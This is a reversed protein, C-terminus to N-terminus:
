GKRSSPEKAPAADDEEPPDDLMNMIDDWEALTAPDDRYKERVIPDLEAVLKLGKALLAAVVPDSAQEPPAQPNQPQKSRRKMEKLVRDIKNSINDNPM